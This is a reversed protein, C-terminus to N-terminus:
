PQVRVDRQPFPIVVKHERFLRDIEFRIESKYINADWSQEAWFVLELDLGNDGFDKLRVQIPEKKNVIPHGMAARKLLDKVLETDSGYAISVDIIFRSLHTGHSWNEVYEQTLRSNPVILVNGNRTEIQTTRVNIKILKAIVPETTGSNYIEVIDGVRLNGEFLIVFGSFMDRFVDQLGLGLGVLLAASGGILLKLDVQLIQLCLLISIVYIVYKAVQIYVFESGADLDIRGKVRRTLYLKVFNVLMKAGFIVVAIGLIHAFSITLFDSKIIKYSLFNEFSVDHNNIGFSYICAYFSLIYVSQSMLRLVTAKRGEVRINQNKLLRKLNRHIVRRLLISFFIIITLFILNWLCVEYPGFKFLTYSLM